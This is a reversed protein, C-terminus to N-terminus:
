KAPGLFNTKSQELRKGNAYVGIKIPTKVARISSRPLEVFLVVEASGSEPIYIKDGVVKLTGEPQDELQLTIHMPETTKNVLQVNYLNSIRNGPQEQYLMGPVRLVTAEVQSRNLLLFGQLSLLLLLVATYAAMRSSFTLKVKETIGKHSDFRILGTPKGIKTMVEDCADICATCNVCELQVGNRIDIGTPCVQVCLKCDICDGQTLLDELKLPRTEVAKADAVTGPKEHSAQHVCGSCGGSCSPDETKEVKKAPKKLRGRPEGRIFDYAVVITERTLLVGQLRGYPCIVTCAQERLKAFVLYFIGTFGVLGIFGALHQAPSQTIIAYVEDVGILYAMLTHAIILSIFLFILHKASKKLLKDATWPAKDLVKQQNADGEIFYEIKRFVMEMFITQPCAWGCWVRGYVVTFLIVFVFFTLMALGFLYFDQPFFPFGLIVFKREFINFLFLPLGNVKIFPAGFLLGLLVIAVVVRLQHLRGKPKKPYVWVREGKENVTSIHDRFTEKNDTITAM